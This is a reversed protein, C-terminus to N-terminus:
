FSADRPNLNKPECGCSGGCEETSKKGPKFRFFLYTVAGVISLVLLVEQIM